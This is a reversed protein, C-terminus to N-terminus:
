ARSTSKQRVERPRPLTLLATAAERPQESRELAARAPDLRALPNDGNM